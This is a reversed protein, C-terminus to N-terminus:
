LHLDSPAACEDDTVFNRPNTSPADCTTAIVNSGNFFVCSSCLNTADLSYLEVGTGATFNLTNGGLYLQELM